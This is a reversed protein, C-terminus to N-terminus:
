ANTTEETKQIEILNSIIELELGKKIRYEVNMLNAEAINRTFIDKINIEYQFYFKHYLEDEQISAAMVKLSLNYKEINSESLNCNEKLEIYHNLLTGNEMSYNYMDKLNVRGNYSTKEYYNIIKNIENTCNNNELLKVKQKYNNLKIINEEADYLEVDDVLSLTNFTLLFMVILSYIISTIFIIYKIKDKM